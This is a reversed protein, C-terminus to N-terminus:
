VHRPRRNLDYTRHIFSYRIILEGVETLLRGQGARIHEPRENEPRKDRRINKQKSRTKNRKRKFAADDNDPPIMMGAVSDHHNNFTKPIIEGPLSTQGERNNGKMHKNHVVTEKEQRIGATQKDSRRLLLLEDEDEMIGHGSMVSNEVDGSSQKSVRKLKKNKEIIRQGLANGSHDLRKKNQTFGLGETHLNNNVGTSTPTEKFLQSDGADLLFASSDFYM